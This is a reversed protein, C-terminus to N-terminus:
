EKLIEIVGQEKIKVVIGLRNNENEEFFVAYGIFMKKPPASCM